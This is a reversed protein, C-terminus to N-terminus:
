IAIVGFRGQDISFILMANPMLIVQKNLFRTDDTYM